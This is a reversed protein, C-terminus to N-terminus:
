KAPQARFTIRTRPGSGLDEAPEIKVSGPEVEYDMTSAFKQAAEIAEGINLQGRSMMAMPKWDDETM